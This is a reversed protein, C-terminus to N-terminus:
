EEPVPDQGLTVSLARATLCPWFTDCRHCYDIGNRTERVHHTMAEAIRRRLQDIEAQALPDAYRVTAAQLQPM